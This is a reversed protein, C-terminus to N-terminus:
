KLAEIKDPDIDIKFLIPNIEIIVRVIKSIEEEFAKVKIKFNFSAINERESLMKSTIEAITNVSEQLRRYVDHIGFFEWTTLLKNVNRYYLRDYLNKTMEASENIIKITKDYDWENEDNSLISAYKCIPLKSYAYKFDFPISLNDIYEEASIDQKEDKSEMEEENESSSGYMCIHVLITNVGDAFNRIAEALSCFEDMICRKTGDIDPENANPYKNKLNEYVSKIKDFIFSGAYYDTYTCADCPLTNVQKTLDNLKCETAKLIGILEYPKQESAYGGIKFIPFEEYIDFNFM